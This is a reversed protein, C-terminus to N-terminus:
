LRALASYTNNFTIQFDALTKYDFLKKRLEDLADCASDYLLQAGINLSIGKLSHITMELNDLDKETILKNYEENFTKYNNLFSERVKLFITYNNMMYRMAIDLDIYDM